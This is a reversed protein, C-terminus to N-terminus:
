PRVFGRISISDFEARFDGPGDWAGLQLIAHFSRAIFPPRGILLYYLTGGLSYIDARIDASKAELIQEPAIFDPTGLIQGVATLASDVRPPLSDVPPPAPESRTTGRLPTETQSATAGKQGRGIWDLFSASSM